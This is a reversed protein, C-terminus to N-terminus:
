WRLMVMGALLPVQGWYYYKELVTGKTVRLNHLKMGDVDLRTCLRQERTKATRHLRYAQPTHSVNNCHIWGGAAVTGDRNPCTFDLGLCVGYVHAGFVDRLVRNFSNFRKGRWLANLSSPFNM